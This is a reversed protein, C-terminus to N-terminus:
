ISYRRRKVYRSGHASPPRLASEESPTKRLGVVRRVHLHLCRGSHLIQYHGVQPMACSVKRRQLPYLSLSLCVSLVFLYFWPCRVDVQSDKLVLYCRYGADVVHSNGVSAISVVSDFWSLDGCPGRVHCEDVLAKNSGQSGVHSHRSTCPCLM